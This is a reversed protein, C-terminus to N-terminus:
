IKALFKKKLFFVSLLFDHDLSDRAKKIVMTVLYGLIDLIDCMEIVDFILRGNESIRTNKVCATQNCSILECLVHKLKEAISKSLILKIGM